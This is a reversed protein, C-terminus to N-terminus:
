NYKSEETVRPPSRPLPPIVGNRLSAFVDLVFVRLRAVRALLQAHRAPQGPRWRFVPPFFGFWVLVCFFVVVRAATGPGRRRGSAFECSRSRPRSAVPGEEGRSWGYVPGGGSRGPARRGQPSPHGQARLPASSHQAAGGAGAPAWVGAGLSTRVSVRALRRRQPFGRGARRRGEPVRRGAAPASQIQRRWVRRGSGSGARGEATVDSGAVVAFTM